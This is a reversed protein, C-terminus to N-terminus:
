EKFYTTELKKYGRKEYDIAPSSVMVTSCIINIRGSDLLEEGKKNFELWLKGGLTGKRHEPKVWWALEKLELVKPCWVNPTIAAILMGNLNDDILVFGKGAILEYILQAFYDANQNVPDKFTEVPAELAYERMMETIKYIDYKTAQRIM